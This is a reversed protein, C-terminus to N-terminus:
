TTTRADRDHLWSIAGRAAAVGTAFCAQLLYGGTPADWDLMEGAAFVGPRSNLMFRDDLEALRIGGATSIARELPATGSVVLATDKILAALPESGAPLDNGTAERMLGIAVPALGVLRALSKSRSEKARRRGLRDVLTLHELDPRLDLHLTAEGAADLQARVVRSLGYAAGGELGLETVMLEGRLSNDGCAVGINKVPAGAFREAFVQSWTIDLGCNSARLPAVDVGSSELTQVWDGNSGTGPWSAGGLTLVAADARIATPGSPTELLLHADDDGWGTWRTSCLTRVGIQELRALWADLLRNARLSRPFVRGSSGVFTEEGLGECWVRLDEPPFRRVADIIPGASDGYRTLFVDLPESHTLNLGGRGALLLKRGPAATAEVLVVELGDEAALTEAAILGAPGGGIVAVVAAAPGDAPGTGAM